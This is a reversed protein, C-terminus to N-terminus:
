MAESRAILASAKGAVGCHNYAVVVAFVWRIFMVIREGILDMFFAKAAFV